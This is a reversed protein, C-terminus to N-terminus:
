LALLAALTLEKIADYLISKTRRRLGFLRYEEGGFIVSAYYTIPRCSQVWRELMRRPRFHKLEWKWRQLMKKSNDNCAIAHPLTWSIVAPILVALCPFFIYFPLRVSHVFKITGYNAITSLVLGLAMLGSAVIAGVTLFQSVNVHLQTFNSMIRRCSTNNLPLAKISNIAMNFLRLLAVASLICGSLNRSAQFTIVFKIVAKIAITAAKTALSVPLGLWNKLLTNSTEEKM